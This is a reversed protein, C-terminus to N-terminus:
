ADCSNCQHQYFEFISDVVSRERASISSRYFYLDLLTCLHHLMEHKIRNASRAHDRARQERYEFLDMRNLHTFFALPELCEDDKDRNADLRYSPAVLAAIALPVGGLNQLLFYLASADANWYKVVVGVLVASIGARLLIPSWGSQVAPQKNRKKNCAQWREREAKIDAEAIRIHNKADDAELTALGLGSLHARRIELELRKAYPLNQGYESYTENYIKRLNENIWVNQIALSQWYGTKFPLTSLKGNEILLVGPPLELPIGELEFDKQLIFDSGDDKAAIAKGSLSIVQSVLVLLHLYKSM